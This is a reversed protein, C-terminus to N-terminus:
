NKSFLIKVFTKLGYIIFRTKSPNFLKFFYNKIIRPQTYFDKIIKKYYSELTERDLTNPVFNAKLMSTKRWSTDFSGFDSSSEGLVTRPIPTFFELELDDIKSEKILHWTKEIDEKTEKPSGIIFFGRVSIGASKTEGIRKKIDVLSLDKNLIDLVRQSGSEIGYSIQWCGALKMLKLIKKDVCDIRTLCSWSINVKRSIMLECFKKIRFHPITFVDDYFCIDRIGFNDRLNEILSVVYKPSHYIFKKGFVSKDCFSCNWPCGRSMTLGTSPYNKFNTPTPQYKEPFGELLDFSPFPLSDLSKIREDSKNVVINNKERFVLGPVKKSNSNLFELLSRESEGILGFDFSAYLKLTEVPALNIHPGGLIIIIDKRWFKIKKAFDAAYNIYETNSTLCIFDPNFEKIKKLADESSMRLNYADIIKVEFNNKRLISALFLIGLQPLKGLVDSFVGFLENDVPPNVFVVKKM